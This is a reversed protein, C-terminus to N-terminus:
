KLYNAFLMLIISYSSSQQISLINKPFFYKLLSYFIKIKCIKFMKLNLKYLGFVSQTLFVPRKHIPDKGTPERSLLQNWCLAPQEVQILVPEEQKCM